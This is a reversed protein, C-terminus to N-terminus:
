SKLRSIESFDHSTIIFDQPTFSSILTSHSDIFSNHLTIDGDFILSTLEICLSTVAEVTEHIEMLIINVQVAHKKITISFIKKKQFVCLVHKMKIKKKFIIFCMSFILNLYYSGYKEFFM